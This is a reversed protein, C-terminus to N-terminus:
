TEIRRVRDGASVVKDWATIILDGDLIGGQVAARTNDKDEVSVAVREAVQTDGLVSTKNRLVLVYDGTSDGRLAALPVITQYSDTKRTFKVTLRMGITFGEEPLAIVAEVSGNEDAESVSEVQAREPNRKGPPTVQAMDGESVHRAEERTIKCTLTLGDATNALQMLAESGTERGAQANLATVVGSAPARIISGDSRLAGLRNVKVRAQEVDLDLAELKLKHQKVAKQDEEGLEDLELQARENGLKNYSVRAETLQDSLNESDLEILADGKSVHAGGRVLVRAIRLGPMAWVMQASTAEVVGESSAEHSLAGRRVQEVKVNAILLSDAARAIVTLLAMAAFFVCLGKLALKNQM